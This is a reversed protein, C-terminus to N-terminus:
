RGNQRYKAPTVSKLKKFMHIFHSTTSFGTEAAIETISKETTLLMREAESIKIANVYDRFSKGVSVHFLHSLYNYSFGCMAAIEKENVSRYNDSIYLIAKKIEDPLEKQGLLMGKQEWMRFTAAFIHLICARIQLEFGVRMENWEKQASLFFGHIGMERCEYESFVYQSIENSVFPMVYKFNMYSHESDYLVQPLVKICYYESDEDFEFNHAMKSNIIVLTGEKFRCAVENVWVVGSGKTFFLLEIYDHYHFFRSAAVGKPHNEKIEYLCHVWSEVGGIKYSEEEKVPRQLM